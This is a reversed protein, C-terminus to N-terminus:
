KKVRKIVKEVYGKPAQSSHGEDLRQIYPVDNRIVVKTKGTGLLDSMDSVNKWGKQAQGTDIPTDKVLNLFLNRQYKDYDRAMEKELQKTAKTKFFAV